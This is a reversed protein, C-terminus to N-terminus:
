QAELWFRVQSGDETQNQHTIRIVQGF